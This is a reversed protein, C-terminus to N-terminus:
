AIDARRVGLQDHILSATVRLRDLVDNPWEPGCRSSPATVSIAALVEDDQNFLPVAVCRTGELFDGQDVAYGRQRVEALVDLLLEPDTITAATFRPLLVATLRERAEKPPLQALLAKGLGTAHAHLRMGVSSALRMPRPSESIAIYVNEIGDLRAVQVTEGVERALRDMHPKIIPVLDRHGAYQQGVQWARLGLSYTRMMADHHLWGRVVLTHLLGHASSRALSFENLVDQFRVVGRDGVFGVIALARDASKVLEGQLEDVM